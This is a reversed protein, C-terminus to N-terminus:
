YTPLGVTVGNGGEVSGCTHAHLLLGLPMNTSQFGLSDHSPFVTQLNQAFFLALGAATPPVFAERSSGAFQTPSSTYSPARYSDLPPIRDSRCPSRAPDSLRKVTKSLTRSVLLSQQSSFRARHVAACTLSGLSVTNVGIPRHKANLLVVVFQERDLGEFLPRVFQAVDSSQKLTAEYPLRGDRVLSIRYIPAYHM